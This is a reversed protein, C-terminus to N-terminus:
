RIDCHATGLFSLRPCYGSFHFRFVFAWGRSTHRGNTGSEYLSHPCDTGVRRMGRRGGGEVKRSKGEGEEVGTKVVHEKGLKELKRSEERSGRDLHSSGLEVYGDSARSAKHECWLKHDTM